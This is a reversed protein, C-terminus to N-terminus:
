RHYRHPVFPLPAVELDQAQGRVETRLRTGASAYQAAVYGMAVPRGLSPSFGGSTITGAPHGEATTIAQGARVPRQGAPLLGVRRRPAGERLQRLIVAAGPFRATAPDERYRRAITWELGAEVPSTSADIDQGHLCLGAELRLTDRAGLGAPAVGALDLLARACREADEEAVSIEFGDEGTYGARHVLARAGAVELLAGQMFGLARAGPAIRELREAALPGQLAILARAQMAARCDGGLGAEIHALDAEKNAANVVLWLGDPLRTVMLDDLIGGAEGTLLSYRQRFVGLGQVDGTVLAELRRDADPGEIRIQGMHSVDFLSANSRTHLHEHRIGGPFQVPMRYGAFDVFRAGLAEWLGYLPTRRAAPGSASPQSM